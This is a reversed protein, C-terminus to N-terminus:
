AFAIKLANIRLPVTNSDDLEIDFQIVSDDASISIVTGYSRVEVKCQARDSLDFWEDIPYIM